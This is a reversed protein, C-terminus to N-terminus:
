EAASSPLPPSSGAAGGPPAPVEAPAGAVKEDPRQQAGQNATVKNEKTAGGTNGDSKRAPDPSNQQKVTIDGAPKAPSQGKTRGGGKTDAVSAASSKAAPPRSQGGGAPPASGQPPAPKAVAEPAPQMTGGATQDAQTSPPAETPSLENVMQGSAAPDALPADTSSFRLVGFYSLVGALVVAAGFGGAACFLAGLISSAPIGIMPRVASVEFLVVTLNDQHPLKKLLVAEIMGEAATMPDGDRAVAAIAEPSLGRYLGDSCAVIHDGLRLPLGERDIQPRPPGPAGLYATLAEPNTGALEKESCEGGSLRHQLLSAVNHDKTLQAAPDRNRCLYLRSDGLSGWYLRDRWVVAAVITTGAIEGDGSVAWVAQHAERIARDLASAVDESPQKRNYASLVADVAARSADAGNALGGMGDCLVMMVGGHREFPRDAFSSFGFADQQNKRDGIHQANGPIVKM